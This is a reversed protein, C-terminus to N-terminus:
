TTLAVDILQLVGGPATPARSTVTSGGNPEFTGNTPPKVYWPALGVIEPKFGIEPELNPPVTTVIEPDLKLAPAVTEKPPLLQATEDIPPDAIVQVVEVCAAPRTPTVTVLESPLKTVAL